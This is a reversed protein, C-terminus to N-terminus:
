NLQKLIKKSGKKNKLLGLAVVMGFLLLGVLSIILESLNSDNKASKILKQTEGILKDSLVFAEVYDKNELKKDINNLKELLYDKTTQNLKKSSYLLSNVYDKNTQVSTLLNNITKNMSWVLNRAEMITKNLQNLCRQDNCNNILIKQINNKIENLDKQKIPFLYSYEKFNYGISYINEIEKIDNLLSNLEIQASLIQNNLFEQQKKKEENINEIAKKIENLTNKEIGKQYLENIKKMSNENLLDREKLSNRLSDVFELKLLALQELDNKKLSQNLLVKNKLNTVKKVYDKSLIDEFSQVIQYFELVNELLSVTDNNSSSIGNSSLNVSKEHLANILSTKNTTANLTDKISYAIKVKIIATEKLPKFVFSLSNKQQRKSIIQVENAEYIDFYEINENIDEIKYEIQNLKIESFVLTFEVYNIAGYSYNTINLIKLSYPNNIIHYVEIKHKGKPLFDIIEIELIKQRILDSIRASCIKNDFKCSLIENSNSIEDDTFYLYNLDYDTTLLYNRKVYAFFSTQTIIDDNIEYNIKNIVTDNLEIFYDGQSIQNNFKILIGNNQIKVEINKNTFISFNNINEFFKNKKDIQEFIKDGPLLISYNKEDSDFDFDIDFTLKYVRILTEGIQQFNKEVKFSNMIHTELKKEFNADLAAIEKSLTEKMQLITKIEEIDNCNNIDNIQQNYNNIMEQYLNTALYKRKKELLNFAEKKNEFLIELLRNKILQIKKNMLQILLENDDFTAQSIKSVESKIESITKSMSLHDEPYSEKIAPLVKEIRSIEQELAEISDFMKKYEKIHDLNNKIEKLKIYKQGLNKISKAYLFDGKLNYLLSLIKLDDKNEIIKSELKNDIDKELTQILMNSTKVLINLRNQLEKAKFTKNKYIEINKILWSDYQQNFEEITELEIEYISKIEELEKNIKSSQNTNSIIIEDIINADILNLGNKYANSINTKLEAKILIYDNKVKSLESKKDNLLTELQLRQLYISPYDIELIDKLNMYVEYNSTRDDRFTYHFIEKYLFATNKDLLPNKGILYNLKFENFFNQIKLIQKDKNPFTKFYYDKGFANIFEKETENFKNIENSVLSLTNDYVSLLKESFIFSEKDVYPRVYN